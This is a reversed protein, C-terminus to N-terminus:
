YLIINNGVSRINGDYQVERNRIIDKIVAYNEGDDDSYYSIFYRDEIFDEFMGLDKSYKIDCKRNFIGILKIDDDTEEEYFVSIKDADYYFEGDKNQHDIVKENNVIATSNEFIYIYEKEREFIKKRFYIKDDQGGLFRITGIKGIEDIINFLLNESGLKIDNIFNNFEMYNISNTAKLNKDRAFIGKFYYFEKEWAEDYAEEFFISKEGKITCLFIYDRAGLVFKSDKIFYSEVENLDILYAFKYIYDKSNRYKEFKLGLFDKKEIFVIFYRKDLIKIHRVDGELYINANIETYKQDFIYDIRFVDLISGKRHLIFLSSDKYFIKYDYYNDKEINIKKITKEMDISIYYMCIYLYKINNEYRQTTYILRQDDTYVFNFKENSYKKLNILQM